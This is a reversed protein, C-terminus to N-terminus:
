GWEFEIMRPNQGPSKEQSRIYKERTKGLSVILTTYCLIYKVKELFIRILSREDMTLILHVGGTIGFCQIYM